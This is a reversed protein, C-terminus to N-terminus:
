AGVAPPDTAWVDNEAYLMPEAILGVKRVNMGDVLVDPMGFAM